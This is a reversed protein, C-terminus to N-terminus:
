IKQTASFPAGFVGRTTARSSSPREAVLLLEVIVCHLLLFIIIIIIIIFCLMMSVDLVFVISFLISFLFTNKMKGLSYLYM